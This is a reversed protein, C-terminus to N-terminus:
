SVYLRKTADTLTPNLSLRLRVADLFLANNAHAAPTLTVGFQDGAHPWLPTATGGSPDVGFLDVLLEGAVVTNIAAPAPFVITQNTYTLTTVANSVLQTPREGAIAATCNIAGNNTGPASNRVNLVLQVVPRNRGDSARRVANALNTPLRFPILLAAGIIAAAYSVYRM